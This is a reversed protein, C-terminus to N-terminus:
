IFNEVPGKVERNWLSLGERYLAAGYTYFFKKIGHEADNKYTVTYSLRGDEKYFYAPGHRKGNRFLVEHNLVGSSYYQKAIGHQKGICIFPIEFALTDSVGFRTDRYYARSMFACECSTGDKYHETVM